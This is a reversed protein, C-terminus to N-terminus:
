TTIFDWPCREYPHTKHKLNRPSRTHSFCAYYWIINNVHASAPEIPLLPNVPQLTCVGGQMRPACGFIKYRQLSWSHTYRKRAEGTNIHQCLSRKAEVNRSGKRPGKAIIFDKTLTNTESWINSLNPYFTRFVNKNPLLVKNTFYLCVWIHEWVVNFGLLIYQNLSHLTKQLYLDFYSRQVDIVTCLQSHIRGVSASTPGQKESKWIADM